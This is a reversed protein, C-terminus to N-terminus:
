ESEPEEVCYFFEEQIQEEQLEEFDGVEVEMVERGVQYCYKNMKEEFGMMGGNTKINM